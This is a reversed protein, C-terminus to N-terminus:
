SFSDGSHQCWVSCVVCQQQTSRRARNPMTQGPRDPRAHDPKTQCSRAYDQRAQSQKAQDPMIQGAHAWILMYSGLTSGMHVWIFGYSTQCPRAAQPRSSRGGTMYLLRTSTGSSGELDFTAYGPKAHDPRTQGPITQDPGAQCPRAHDPM